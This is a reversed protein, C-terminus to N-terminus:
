ADERSLRFGVLDSQLDPVDFSPDPAGAWTQDFKWHGGRNAQDESDYVLRIGLASGEFNPESGLTEAVNKVPYTLPYASGRAKMM